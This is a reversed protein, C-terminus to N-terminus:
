RRGRAHARRGAPSQPVERRARARARRRRRRLALRAVRRRALRTRRDPRESRRAGARPVTRRREDETTAQARGRLRRRRCARRRAGRDRECKTAQGDHRINPRKARLAVVLRPGAGELTEDRRGIVDNRGRLALLVEAAARVVDDVQRQRLVLLLRSPVERVPAGFADEGAVPLRAEPEERLIVGPRVVDPSSTGSQDRRQPRLRVVASDDQRVLARVGGRLLSPQPEQARRAGLQLRDEQEVFAIRRRRGVTRGVQLAAAVLEPADVIGRAERARLQQDGVAMMAVLGREGVCGLAARGVQHDHEHRRPLFTQRDEGRVADRLVDVSRAARGDVLGTVLQRPDDQVAVAAVLQEVAVPEVDLDHLADRGLADAIRWTALLSDGGDVAALGLGGEQEAGRADLVDPGDRTPALRHRLLAGVEIRLEGRAQEEMRKVSQSASQRSATTSTRRTSASSGVRASRSGTTPAPMPPSSVVAISWAASRTTSARKSSTSSTVNTDSSIPVTPSPETYTTISGISPESFAFRLIPKKESETATADPDVIPSTSHPNTWSKPVSSSHVAVRPSPARRLPWRSSPSRGLSRM